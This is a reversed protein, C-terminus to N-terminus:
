KIALSWSDCIRPLYWTLPYIESTQSYKNPSTLETWNLPETMDLKKHGWPCWAKRDKVLEQLKNLSTDMSNTIGDLWKMRHWGRRRRGEIKELMLTKEVSDTRRMLHGFYQLKKSMQYLIAIYMCILDQTYVCMTVQQFWLYITVTIYPNKYNVTENWLIYVHLNHDLVSSMLWKIITSVIHVVKKWRGPITAWGNTWGHIWCM